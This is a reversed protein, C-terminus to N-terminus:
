RARQVCRRSSGRPRMCCPRRGSSTPRMVRVREVVHGHPSGADHTTLCDAELRVAAALHLADAASMKKGPMGQGQWLEILRVAERALDRDIEVWVTSSATFWGDLLKQIRAAGTRAEGNCCIVRDPSAVAGIATEATASFMSSAPLARGRGRNPCPARVAASLQQFLVTDKGVADFIPVAKSGIKVEREVVPYFGFFVEEDNLLYMKFTMPMPIVRAQVDVKQM